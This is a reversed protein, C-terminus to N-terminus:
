SKKVIEIKRGGLTVIGRVVIKARGKSALGSGSGAVSVNMMSPFAASSIIKGKDKLTNSQFFALGQVDWDVRSTSLSFGVITYSSNQTTGAKLNPRETTVTQHPVSGFFSFTRTAPIEISIYQSVDFDNTPTRLIFKSGAGASSIDTVLYLKGGVPGNTGHGIDNAIAKIIDSTGIRGPDVTPLGFNTTLLTLNQIYASLSITCALLVNTSYGSGPPTVTAVFSNTASLHQANTASPNFDTVVTEFTNTAGIANTGPTWTIVGNPDISAGAPPDILQYTLTNTPIDSDFATNTVSLTSGVAITQDSQFPLQPASNVENVTVNFSNTAFALTDDFVITTITVNTPGQAETPRWTIIGTAPDIFAGAPPHQLQYTLNTGSTATNTVTLVTLEDITRDPQPPLIPQAAARFAACIFGVALLAFIRM